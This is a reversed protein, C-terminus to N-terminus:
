YIMTGSFALTPLANPTATAASEIGNMMKTDGEWPIEQNYFNQLQQITISDIGNCYCSSWYSFGATVAVGTSFEPHWSIIEGL